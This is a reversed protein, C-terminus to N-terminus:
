SDLGIDPKPLRSKVAMCAEVMRDLAPNLRQGSERLAAFEKMIADLQDAIDPYAEARSQRVMRWPEAHRTLRDRLDPDGSLDLPGRLQIAPSQRPVPGEVAVYHRGDLKALYETHPANPGERRPPQFTQGSSEIYSYIKV